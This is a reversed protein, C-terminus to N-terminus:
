KKAIARGLNIATTTTHVASMMNVRMSTDLGFQQAIRPVENAALMVDLGLLAALTDNIGGEGADFRTHLSIVSVGASFLKMPILAGSYEESLQKLPRFILPHHSIILDYGGSIAEDAVKRTVDLALLVRKVERESNRCVMLGDNDWECSLTRPYLGDLFSYIDKVTSM